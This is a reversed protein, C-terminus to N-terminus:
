ENEEGVILLEQLLREVIVGRTRLNWEVKLKDIAEIVDRGLELSIRARGSENYQIGDTKIPNSLIAFTIKDIDASQEIQELLWAIVTKDQQFGLKDRLRRITDQHKDFLLGADEQSSVAVSPPGPRLPRFDPLSVSM